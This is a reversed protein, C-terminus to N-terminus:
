VGESGFGLIRDGEKRTLRRGLAAKPVAPWVEQELFRYAERLRDRTVVQLALRGKRERLARNRAM